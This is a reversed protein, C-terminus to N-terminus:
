AGNHAIQAVRHVWSHPKVGNVGSLWAMSAKTDAGRGDTGRGRVGWGRGATAGLARCLAQPAVTM